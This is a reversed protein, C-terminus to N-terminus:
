QASLWTKLQHYVEPHHLLDLHGCEYIIVANGENFTLQFTPNAHKGLASEVPVLGDGMLHNKLKKDKEGLLAAIAYCNVASPLPVPTRYDSQSEFRDRGEWDEDLLNGNRLDTIGESRIKGLKAFPKAFAIVELLQDVYNGLKELPSGHHPTGLFVLSKVHSTWKKEATEGYHYASRAVLGGMSHTLLHLEEVAVPWNNLLQEIMDSLQQGNKSIHLGSNYYLYVPTLDLEEALKEGHNHNEQEWQLDSMCLGHILLLIKGNTKQYSEEIQKQDFTLTKGQYRFQMSIALANESDVLYNGVAGNLASIAATKEVSVSSPEKSSAVENITKSVSSGIIKTLSRIGNYSVSSFGGIIKKVPPVPKLIRNQMDETIDTIGLTVDTIIKVIEQLDKSDIKNKKAM